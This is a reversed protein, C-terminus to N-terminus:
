NEQEEKRPQSHNIKTVLNGQEDYYEWENIKEGMRYEGKYRVRGNPYFNIEWGNKKGHYYMISSWRQGSEYYSQWLGNREGKDNYKGEIKLQGNEYYIAEGDKKKPQEEFQAFADEGTEEVIEEDNSDRKDETCSFHMLIVVFGLFLLYHKM